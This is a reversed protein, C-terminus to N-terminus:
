TSLTAPERATADSKDHLARITSDSHLPLYRWAADYAITVITSADPVQKALQHCAWVCAASSNGVLSLEKYALHDRFTVVDQEKPHFIDTLAPGIKRINPFITQGPGTGYIIHPKYRLEADGFRKRYKDAHFHYYVTPSEFPEMGYLITDAKEQLVSGVGWASIGNGLATVFYQPVGLQLRDFDRLIELGLEKMGFVGLERQHSHDTPFDNEGADREYDASFAERLGDIYAVRPSYRVEAGYSKIQEIRADPMDQPIYIIAEYGLVRCM